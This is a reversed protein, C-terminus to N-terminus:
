KQFKNKNFLSMHCTGAACPGAFFFCFAMQQAQVQTETALQAPGNVWGKCTPAPTYIDDEHIAHTHAHLQRQLAMAYDVYDITAHRQTLINLMDYMSTLM